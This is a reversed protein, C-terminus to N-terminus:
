LKLRKDPLVEFFHRWKPLSLGIDMRHIRIEVCAGAGRARALAGEEARFLDLRIAAVRRAGRAPRVVVRQRRVAAHPLLRPVDDGREEREEGICVGAGPAPVLVPAKENAAGAEEILRTADEDDGAQALKQKEERQLELVAEEHQPCGPVPM